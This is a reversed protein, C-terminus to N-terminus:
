LKKGLLNKLNMTKRKEKKGKKGKGGEKAKKACRKKTEWHQRQKRLMERREERKCNLKHVFWIQKWVVLM